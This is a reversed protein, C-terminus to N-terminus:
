DLKTGELRGRRLVDKYFAAQPPLVQRNSMDNESMGESMNDRM